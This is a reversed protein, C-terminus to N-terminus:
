PRTHYHFYVSIILNSQVNIVKGMYHITATKNHNITIMKSRSSVHFKRLFNLALGLFLGQEFNPSYPIFFVLQGILLILALSQFGSQYRTTYFYKVLLFYIGFIMSFGLLGLDWYVQVFYNHPSIDVINGYLLRGYGSGFPHGFIKVFNGGTGNEALLLRWSELRWDFTGMNQTSERFSVVFHNGIVLFGIVLILIVSVVSNVILRGRAKKL